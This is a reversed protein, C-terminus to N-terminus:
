RPDDLADLLYGLAWDVTQALVREPDGEFDRRHAIVMHDSATALWVCGAPEGDRDEPGGVGTVAVSVTAGLLGRVGQAMAEACDRSVVPVDPVDLVSRKVGPDYAVVGGLFWQAADPAAGLRAAIKGSTLSEAVAVTHGGVRAAEAIRKALEEPTM